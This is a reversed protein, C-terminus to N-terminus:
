LLEIDMIDFLNKLNFNIWDEYRYSETGFVGSLPVPFGVKKRNIIEDGIIKKAVLKLPAKSVGNNNKYSFPVGAMMEVLRYDVFPSRAEVSAFMSSFDLRRLLGHLHEIQFFSSLVSYPSSYKMHPELIYEIIDYDDHGGYSYMENFKKLDFLKMRSFESFIRDYGSFLEDAGEGSLLVKNEESARLSMKYILVENPVSLPEGRAKVMKRAISLFEEYSILINTHSTGASDAAMDAYYFENMEDFGISWTDSVKSVAAIFSSDLGGSLYSGVPVDSVMRIKVTDYLLEELESSSPPDKYGFECSWYRKIVGNELYCGAPFEKIKDYITHGRFFTRMKRYQRIGVDDIDNTGTLDVIPKVESSYCESGSSLYMYLPKVGLRDRAVFLTSTYKDYIVFSFMGNVEDLLKSGIKVYLELLVETDSYTKPELCYKMSLEIFNYIEGNYVVVYRGCSSHMPQNANDSLDQIKLRNHGMILDESSYISTDDPGRYKMCQLSQSVKDLDSIIGKTVVFGCM